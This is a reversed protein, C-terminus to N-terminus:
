HSRGPYRGIEKFLLYEISKGFQQSLPVDFGAQTDYSFMFGDSYDLPDDRHGPILLESAYRDDLDKVV